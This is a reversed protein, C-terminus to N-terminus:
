IDFVVELEIGGRDILFTKVIQRLGTELIREFRIEINGLFNQPNRNLNLLMFQIRSDETISDLTVLFDLMTHRGNAAQTDTGTYEGDVLVRVFPSMSSDPESINLWRIRM